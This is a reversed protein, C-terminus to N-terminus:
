DNAWNDVQDDVWDDDIKGGMWRIMWGIIMWGDIQGDM